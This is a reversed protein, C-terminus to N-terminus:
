RLLRLIHAVEPPELAQLSLRRAALPFRLPDASAADLEQLDRSSLSLINATDITKALYPDPPLSFVRALESRLWQVDSAFARRGQAHFLSKLIVKEHLYQGIGELVHVQVMRMLTPSLLALQGLATSLSVLAKTWAPHMGIPDEPNERAVGYHMSRALEATHQSFQGLIYGVLHERVIKGQLLDTFAEITMHFLGGPLGSSDYGLVEKAEQSQALELSLLSGSWRKVAVLLTELANAAQIFSALDESSSHFVPLSFDLARYVRELLSVQLSKFFRLQVQPEELDAYLLTISDFLDIAGSVFTDYPPLPLDGLAASMAEAEMDIWRSLLDSDGLFLALCERGEDWYGYDSRLRAYFKAAVGITRSLLLCNGQLAPKMAVLKAKALGLLEQIFLDLFPVDQQGAPIMPELYDALFAVHEELIRQLYAFFWEPRDAGEGEQGATEFHFHFRIAIPGLLVKVLARRGDEGLAKRLRVLGVSAEVFGVVEPDDWRGADIPRPWQCGNAAEAIRGMARQLVASRSHELLGLTYASLSQSTRQAEGHAEELAEIASICHSLTLEHGRELVARAEEVCILLELYREAYALQKIEQSVLKVERFVENMAEDNGLSDTARRLTTYQGHLNSFAQRLRGTEEAVMARQKARVVREYHEKQM